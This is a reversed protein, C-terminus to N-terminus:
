HRLPPSNKTDSSVWGHLAWVVIAKRGDMLRELAPQDSLDAEILHLRAAREPPTDALLAANKGQDRDLAFVEAGAALLDLTTRHGLGGSAGTYLIRRGTLDTM